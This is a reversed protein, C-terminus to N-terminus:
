RKFGALLERTERVIDDIYRTSPNHQDPQRGNMWLEQILELINRLGQLIEEIDTILTRSFLAAVDAQDITITHAFVQDRIDNYDSSWKRRYPRLVRALHRLDEAT